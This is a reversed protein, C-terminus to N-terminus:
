IRGNKRGPFGNKNPSCTRRWMMCPRFSELWKRPPATCWRSRTMRWARAGTISIGSNEVPMPLGFHAGVLLSFLEARVEEGDRADILNRNERHEAGTGHYVEHLKTAYYEDKDTFSQPWPMHIVDNRINYRPSTNDHIIPIGTCAMFKELFDNRTVQHESSIPEPAPFNEIQSANFVNFSFYMTYSHVEKGQDKATKVDEESRLFVKKRNEDYYYQTLQPRALTISKSGKRIQMPTDPYKKRIEQLQSFTVFRSDNWQNIMSMVSLMLWNYGTYRRGTTACYPQSERLNVFPREWQRGQEMLQCVNTLLNNVLSKQIERSIQVATKKEKTM